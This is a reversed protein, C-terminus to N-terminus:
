VLRLGHTSLTQTKLQEQHTTTYTLVNRQLQGIKDAEGASTWEDSHITDTCVSEFADSARM